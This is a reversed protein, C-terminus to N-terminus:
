CPFLFMNPKYPLFIIFVFFVSWVFLQNQIVTKPSWSDYIEQIHGQEAETVIPFLKRHQQNTPHPSGKFFIGKEQPGRQIVEM